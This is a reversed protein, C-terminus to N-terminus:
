RSLCYAHYFYHYWVYSTHVTSKSEKTCWVRESFNIFKPQGSRGAAQIILYQSISSKGSGTEKQESPRYVERIGNQKGRETKGTSIPVFARDNKDM